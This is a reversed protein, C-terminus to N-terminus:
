GIMVPEESYVIEGHLPPRALGYALTLLGVRGCFMCIILILKGAVSLGPTIGLSLGVTGFASVVEFLCKLFWGPDASHAGRNGDIFMLAVTAVTILMIALIFITVAQIIIDTSFSRKFVSTSNRGLSRNYILLLIVSMSTIKVGGGTSGPCVGIFMLIITITLSVETFSPQPITDFGATRPTVSQFFANALAAIFDLNVFAKNYELLYFAVTGGVLLIATGTLGLKSHISLRSKKNKVRYFVERILAFGLGGLIILFAIIMIIGIDNHFGQLNNSFTSFGANCFASISHFIGAFLAKDAPVYEEFKFFLLMAGIAEISFTIVMVAKILSKTMIPSSGGISQSIGLREGFSVRSRFTLFLSTTITMIGLGGLQILIIIAIQGFLSFDKGTDVVTLGTVCIASTSTFLADIFAISKGTSSPPIYLVFAGVLIAAAFYFIIQRGPQKGFLEMNYTYRIFRCNELSTFHCL